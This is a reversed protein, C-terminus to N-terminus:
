DDKEDDGDKHLLKASIVGQAGKPYFGGPKSADGTGYVTAFVQAPTRAYAVSDKDASLINGTVNMEAGIEKPVVLGEDVFAHSLNNRLMSIANSFDAVTYEYPAVKKDKQRYMETRIVADQGSEVGLLGAVLRKANYGKLLPSAGVYGTLGVYPITYTSILYKLSDEYPDFSPSLKKGFKAMFAKDMTDAWTKKSIDLQTRPFACRPPDALATKIARLHGVEQLGMQYFVDKYYASLNAKQAGIPAPGGDVLYKAAVDLGYGVSGWLFYEAEFYELNLAVQALLKDMVTTKNGKKCMYDINLGGIQLDENTAAALGLLLFVCVGLALGKSSGM